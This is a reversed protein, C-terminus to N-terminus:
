SQSMKKLLTDYAGVLDYLQRRATELVQLAKPDSGILHGLEDHSARLKLVRHEIKKEDAKTM